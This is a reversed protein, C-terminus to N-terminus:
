VAMAGYMAATGAASAVKGWDISKKPNNMIRQSTDGQNSDINLGREAQQDDTLGALYDRDSGYLTSDVNMVDEDRGFRRAANAQQAATMANDISNLGSAGFMKGRQVTGQINAESSDLAAGSRFRMGQYADEAGTMGTAGWQRGSNVADTIGLEGDRVAAASAASQDRASRARQAQAGINYGGQAGNLRDGTANMAAYYSPVQSAIRGRMNTKDADSIGGTRAFEEYTGNARYKDGIATNNMQDQFMPHAVRMAAADVGGGDMFGGYAKSSASFDPNVDYNASSLYDRTGQLQTRSSDADQRAKDKDGALEASVDKHEQQNQARNQDIMNNTNKVEKNGGM